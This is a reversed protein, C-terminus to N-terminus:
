LIINKRRNLGLFGFMATMFLWVASPLPVTAVSTASFTLNGLLAAQGFSAVGFGGASLAAGLAGAAAITYNGAVLQITLTELTDSANLSFGDVSGANSNAHALYEVNSWNGANNAQGWNAVSNYQGIYTPAGPGTNRYASAIGQQDVPATSSDLKDQVKTVPGVKPNMPEVSADDHSDYTNVGKYLSFASDYYYGSLDHTNWTITVNSTTPLRFNFFNVKHSDGLTPKTGDGWGWDTVGAVQVNATSSSPTYTVGTFTGGGAYTQYTSNWLAPDNLPLDSQAVLAGVGNAPTNALALVSAPTPGYQLTSAAKGAPLLDAIQAGQNLDYYYIHASAQQSLGLLAVSVALGIKKKLGLGASATLATLNKNRM